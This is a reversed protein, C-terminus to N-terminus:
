NYIVDIGSLDTATSARKQKNVLIYMTILNLVVLFATITYFMADPVRIKFYMMALQIGIFLTIASCVACKSIAMTSQSFFVNM